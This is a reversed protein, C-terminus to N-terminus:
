KNYYKNSKCCYWIKYICLRIVLVCNLNNIKKKKNVFSLNKCLYIILYFLFIYM